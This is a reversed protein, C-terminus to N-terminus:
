GEVPVEAGPALFSEVADRAAGHWADQERPDERLWAVPIENRATVRM